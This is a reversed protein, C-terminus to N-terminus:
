KIVKKILLLLAAASASLLAGVAASAGTMIATSKRAMKKQADLTTFETWEWKGAENLEGRHPIKGENKNAINESAKVIRRSSVLGKGLALGGAVLGGTIAATGISRVLSM